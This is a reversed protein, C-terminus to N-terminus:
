WEIEVAAGYASVGSGDVEVSVDEGYTAEGDSLESAGRGATCCERRLCDVEVPTPCNLRATQRDVDCGCSEACGTDHGLSCSGMPRM